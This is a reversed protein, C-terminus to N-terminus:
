HSTAFGSDVSAGHGSEIHGIFVMLVKTSSVPHGIEGPLGLLM